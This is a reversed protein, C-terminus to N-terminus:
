GCHTKKALGVVSFILVTSSSVLLSPLSSSRASKRSSRSCSDLEIRLRGAGAIMGSMRSHPYSSASKESILLQSVTYLPHCMSLYGHASHIQVGSASFSEALIAAEAFRDVIDLIEEHTLATPMDFMTKGARGLKLEVASPAKAQLGLTKPMQRGPHNLQLWFKAGNAESVQCWRRFREAYLDSKMHAQCLLTSGAAAMATPDVMVHGSIILGSGGQAWDSYLRIMDDSPCNGNEIDAMNEEMAAKAIRNKLTTGCPLDIEKFLM